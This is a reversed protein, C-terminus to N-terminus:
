ISKLNEGNSVTKIKYIFYYYKYAVILLLAVKVVLIKSLIFPVAIMCDAFLLITVKKRLTMERKQLFAEIHNKYISTGKFWIEFRKSGRVFCASALLLFPTTPLLPVIIGLIGFGLFVLGLIIYILSKIRKIVNV